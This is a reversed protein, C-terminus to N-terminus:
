VVSLETQPLQRHGTLSPGFLLLIYKVKMTNNNLDGDHNSMLNYLTYAM